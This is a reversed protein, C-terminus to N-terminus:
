ELTGESASPEMRIEGACEAEDILDLAKDWVENSRLSADFTLTIGNCKAEVFERGCADRYRRIAVSPADPRPPRIPIIATM